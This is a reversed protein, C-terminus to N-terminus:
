EKEATINVDSIAKYDTDVYIGGDCVVKIQVACKARLISDEEDLWDASRAEISVYNGDVYLGSPLCRLFKDFTEEVDGISYDGIVVNFTM